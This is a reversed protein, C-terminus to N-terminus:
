SFWGLIIRVTLAVALAALCLLFVTAVFIGVVDSLKRRPPRPRSPLSAEWELAGLDPRTPPRRGKTDTTNGLAEDARGPPPPTGKKEPMGPDPRLGPPLGRPDSPDPQGPVDAAAGTPPVLPGTPRKGPYGGRKDGATM